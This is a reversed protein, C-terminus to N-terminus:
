VLKTSSGSGRLSAFFDKVQNRH